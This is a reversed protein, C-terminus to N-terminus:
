VVTVILVHAHLRALKSFTAKPPSAGLQVRRAGREAECAPEGRLIRGRTVKKWVCPLKRFKPLIGTGNCVHDNVIWAM